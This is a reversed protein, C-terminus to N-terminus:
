GAAVIPKTIRAHTQARQEALELFANIVHSIERFAIYCFADSYEAQMKACASGIADLNIMAEMRDYIHKELVDDISNFPYGHNAQHKLHPFIMQNIEWEVRAALMQQQNNAFPKKTESM